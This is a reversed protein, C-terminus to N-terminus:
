VCRYSYLRANRLVFRLRVPRGQLEALSRRDRWEAIAAVDDAVVPVCDQETYHPVPKGSEDLVEVRLEGYDSTANAVLTDGDLELPRTTIAGGDYSAAISVFGDLRLTALGIAMYDRRQDLDIRPEFEGVVKNHRRPTGRYYIYLKDGVPIPPAGTLMIQFRDWSGIEGPEVLSTVEAPGMTPRSWTDGDRSAILKLSQTQTHARRDFHTLIGLYQEGYVFGSNNYLTEEDNLGEMFRRPRSWAVFDESVSVSRYHGDRLFAVYRNRLTDVMFAQADGIPYDDTGPRPHHRFIPDPSHSWDIGDPSWATYIGSLPGDWDYSSWGVAKYRRSDDADLPDRLMTEWHDQGDHYSSPIVINNQTSTGGQADPAEHLGLEPREWHIGDRSTALCQVHQHTPPDYFGAMYWCKFLEDSPDYIVSGTMGPHKEWPADQELVPHRGHRQASHFTRTVNERSEVDRLDVFLRPKDTLIGPM